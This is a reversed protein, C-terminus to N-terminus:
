IFRIAMDTLSRGDDDQMTWLIYGKVTEAYKRNECSTGDGQEKNVM